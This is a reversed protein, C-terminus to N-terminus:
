AGDSLYNYAVAGRSGCRRPGMGGVQDGTELEMEDVM